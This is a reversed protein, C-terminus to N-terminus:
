KTWFKINEINDLQTLVCSCQLSNSYRRSANMCMWSIKVTSNRYTSKEASSKEVRRSASEVRLGTECYGM